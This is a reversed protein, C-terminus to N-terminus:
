TNLLESVPQSKEWRLAVERDSGCLWNWTRTRRVKDRYSEVETVYDLRARDRYAPIEATDCLWDRQPPATRHYSFKIMSRARDNTKPGAKHWIGYRTLAVTGAPVTLSTQGRIDGYHAIAERDVARCHSGPLVMTPGDEIAVSHPYYYCQLETVDYGNGSLGDSHWTQGLHPEQFYHHHGGRPVLFDEGLLSRVVGAVQPHLLVQRTFDDSAIFADCNGRDLSDARRNFDPDIVGELIVLGSAAFDMVGNDDLTPEIQAM